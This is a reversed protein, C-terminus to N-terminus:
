VWDAPPEGDDALTRECDRSIWELLARGEPSATVTAWPAISATSLRQMRVAESAATGPLLAGFCFGRDHLLDLLQPARRDAIPVDAYAIAQCKPLTEDVFEIAQRIAPAPSGFRLLSIGRRSDHRASGAWARTYSDIGESSPHTTPMLRRELGLQKYLDAVMAACYRPLHVDLADLRGFAQFYVVAAIRADGFGHEIGRYDTGAPIHGLLVGTAVGGSATINRQTRDHAGTAIHRLAVIGLDRYSAGMQSGMRSMLGTGRYDPDIVGAITEAVPDGPISIRMGLHGVVRAGVLAGVCLLREAHLESRIFSPEYFDSEPYSEGYCRRICAILAPVDEEGLSRVEIAKDSQGSM